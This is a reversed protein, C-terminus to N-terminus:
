KEDGRQRVCMASVTASQATEHWTSFVTAISRMIGYRPGCYTGDSIANGWGRGDIRFCHAYTKPNAREWALQEADLKRRAMEAKVGEAVVQGCSQKWVVMCRSAECAAPEIDSIVKDQGDYTHIVLAALAAVIM